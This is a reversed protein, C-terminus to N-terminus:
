FLAGPSTYIYWVNNGKQKKAEKPLWKARGLKKIEHKVDQKDNEVMVFTCAWNYKNARVRGAMYM